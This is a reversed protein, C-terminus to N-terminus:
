ELLEKLAIRKILAEKGFVWLYEENAVAEHIHPWDVALYHWSDGGNITEYVVARQNEPDLAGGFIYGQDANLFLIKRLMARKFPTKGLLVTDKHRTAYDTRVVLDKASNKKTIQWSKHPTRFYENNFTINFKSLSNEYKLLAQRHGEWPIKSWSIGGDTTEMFVRDFSTRVTDAPNYTFGSVYGADRTMFHMDYYAIFLGDPPKILTTDSRYQTTIRNPLKPSIDRWTNGSDDTKYVYGYDGCVFGENKNIFQIKEFYESDLDALKKWTAGQDNSRYIIGNGYDLSWLTGHHEYAKHIPHQLKEITLDKWPKQVFDDGQAQVFLALFCCYISLFRHYTEM